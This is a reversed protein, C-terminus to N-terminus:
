LILMADGYSYFRYSNAIATRYAEKALDSGCFTCILVFLTSRPLHFNTLLGDVGRFKHPPYLFLDTWGEGSEFEGSKAATELVRCSTTGVAWVSDRICM